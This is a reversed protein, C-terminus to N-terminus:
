KKALYAKWSGFRTIEEAGVIGEPECIFGSCWSGDALEVKGIGLPHPIEAVFSGFNAKPVRWVEVDIAVGNNSDRILGPRKPPGGALAYFRYNASTATAQVFTAGRETLQWNLPLGQLHAGCVVVDITESPSLTNSSTPSYIKSLAGLTMPHSSQIRAALSLLLKDSYARSFITFGFGVGNQYFGSPVSIAAYDLLNMFNTYYGLQSNLAVPDALVQDISYCSGATPTIVVDVQELVKDAARQYQALQYQAKFVAEADQQDGDRIITKIVPLLSNSDMKEIAIKRESVWPGEYLLKAANKFAAFDVTVLSAVSALRDLAQRFLQEAEVNGFFELHEPQPVGITLNSVQQGFYRPGNSHKNHRSYSDEADYQAAVNFVSNADEATLAFISVCDLSKCAPVVGCTSLLGRSPKLGIINNLSAPVRGSGATDTGLSFSVLGLALAVASGSSSGGAIMAPNLANKCPGWPEPSRVGVLGTAFQDLNTKGLPIAGANLLQQVVFANDKPTSTFDPCAATTPVGALDINDKIAFPIGFLPLTDPTNKELGTLYSELQEMTLRTIWIPNEDVNDCADLLAAILERPTFDQQRYHQSLGHVTIDVKSLDIM